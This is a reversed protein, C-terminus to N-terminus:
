RARFERSSDREDLASRFTHTDAKSRNIRTLNYFTVRMVITYIFFVIRIIRALDFHLFFFDEFFKYVFLFYLNANINIQM